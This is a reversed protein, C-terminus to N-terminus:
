NHYRPLAIAFISGEGPIGTSEVWIYGSMAEILQRCLYLGLGTGRQMSNIANNLRMFKTFLRKREETNIGPGWDRIEILVFPTALTFTAAEATPVLSLAQQSAALRRNVTALDVCTATIAIASAAPTYKIANGVVNLLVQRLRLDDVWVYVDDAVNVQVPREERAITPDLIELILQVAKVLQMPGMNLLVRDQDIRSTDMVNGLLLILEECARRANQLFHQKSDDDLTANFTDLLELYGQIATLPTRLEHSATMLFHNKIQESEQARKLADRLETNLRVNTLAIGAQVGIEKLMELHRRTYARPKYSQASLLGLVQGGYRIPIFLISQSPRANGILGEHTNPNEEKIFEAYEEATSFMFGANEQRLIKKISGPYHKYELPSYVVGEDIFFDIILKEAASYYRSIYFADTPMVRGVQEYITQYVTQLDRLADPASLAWGIKILAAREESTQQAEKYLGAGEIVVAAQNAFLELLAMTEPIPRRGDLPSDPTLFGLLTNDGKILPVVLMDEPHWATGDLITSCLPSTAIQESESEDIVFYHAVQENKWLSAEAPIFYSESIRYEECILQAVIDAPLPHQHLYEENEASVGSVARAHFYGAGDALYLASHRFRLAKCSAEAVRQLLIDIDMHLRLSSGINTIYKLVERQYELNAETQQVDEFMDINSYSPSADFQQV